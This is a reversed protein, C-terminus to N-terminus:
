IFNSLIDDLGTVEASKTEPKSEKKQAEPQEQAAQHLAALGTGVPLSGTEAPKSPEVIDGNSIADMIGEDVVSAQPTPKQAEKHEPKTITPAPDRRHEQVGATEKLSQVEATLDKVLTTLAGVAELMDPTSEHPRTPAVGMTVADFDDVVDPQLAQSMSEFTKDARMDNYAGTHAKNVMKAANMMQDMKTMSRSLADTDINASTQLSKIRLAEIESPYLHLLNLLDMINMRLEQRGKLEDLFAALSVDEVDLSVQFRKKNEKKRSM